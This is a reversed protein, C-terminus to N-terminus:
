GQEGVKKQEEPKAEEPNAEDLKLTIGLVAANVFRTYGCKLSILMIMPYGVGGLNVNNGPSLTLPMVLHDAILWVPDSCIPCAQRDVPWRTGLIEGIVKKEQESLKGDKDAM